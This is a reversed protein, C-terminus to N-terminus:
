NSVVTALPLSFVYLREGRHCGRRSAGNGAFGRTSGTNRASRRAYRIARTAFRCTQSVVTAPSACVRPSLILAMRCHVWFAAILSTEQPEGEGVEEEMRPPAAACHAAERERPSRLLRQLRARPHAFWLASDVPDGQTHDPLIHRGPNDRVPLSRVSRASNLYSNLALALLAM